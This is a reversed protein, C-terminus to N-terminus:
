LPATIYGYDSIRRLVIVYGLMDDLVCVLFSVYLALMKMKFTYTGRLKQPFKCM